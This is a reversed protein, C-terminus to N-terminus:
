SAAEQKVQAVFDAPLRLGVASSKEPHFQVAWVHDRALAAVDARVGAAPPAFARLEAVVADVDDSWAIRRM